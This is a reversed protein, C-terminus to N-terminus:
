RARAAALQARATTLEAQAAELRAATRRARASSEDLDDHASSIQGQVQRQKDRLDDAQAQPTAM